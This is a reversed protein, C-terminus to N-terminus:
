ILKNTKNTLRVLQTQKETVFPLQKVKQSISKLLEENYPMNERVGLYRNLFTRNVKADGIVNISDIKFLKNKEVNLVASLQGEETAISDLKVAVFPYGNNEYYLIIKEFARAVEKYKFPKNFYLKESIGLKSALSPNLNGLKLYAVKHIQNESIYATVSTSDIITSDSAALLYGKNQLTLIVNDIEKLADAKTNFKKQYNLKGAVSKPSATVLKLSISQSYLGPVLVLLYVPLIYKLFIKM